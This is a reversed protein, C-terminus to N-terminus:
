SPRLSPGDIVGQEVALEMAREGRKTKVKSM